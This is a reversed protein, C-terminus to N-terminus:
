KYNHQIKILFFHNFLIFFKSKDCKKEILSFFFTKYIIEYKAEVGQRYFVPSSWDANVKYIYIYTHTYNPLPRENLCTENFVNFLNQRYLLIRELKRILTMTEHQFQHIFKGFNDQARESGEYAIM